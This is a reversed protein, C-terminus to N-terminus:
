RTLLLIYLFHDPCCLCKWVDVISASLPVNIGQVSWSVNSSKPQVTGDIDKQFLEPIWDLLLSGLSVSEDDSKNM